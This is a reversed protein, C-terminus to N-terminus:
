SLISGLNKVLQDIALMGLKKLCLYARDSIEDDEEDNILECLLMVGNSKVLQM